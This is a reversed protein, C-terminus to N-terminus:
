WLLGRQIVTETNQVIQIHLNFQSKEINTELFFRQIDCCNQNAPSWSYVCFLEFITVPGTWLNKMHGSINFFSHGSCFLRYYILHINNLMINEHCTYINEIM